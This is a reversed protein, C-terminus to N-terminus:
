QNACGRSTELLVFPKQFTKLHASYPSPIDDLRTVMEAMGNDVYRGNVVGCFGPITAWAAPRRIGALWAALAIEGEGRIVADIFPFQLMFERNDGLFEPGGAVVRCRPALVKFRSILALLFSRNFLYFTAALVAPQLRALRMLVVPLSDNRSVAVEHWRWKRTARPLGRAVRPLGAREVGARLIWAALNTHAYSAVVSLFVLTRTHNRTQSRNRAGSRMRCEAKQM